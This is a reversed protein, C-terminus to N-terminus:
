STAAGLSMAPRAAAAAPREAVVLSRGTLILAAGSIVSGVITLAGLGGFSVLIGLLYLAPVWRAVLRARAAAVLLLILGLFAPLVAAAGFAAAGPMGQAAEEVAVAQALPLREALAIAYFDVVLLGPMTGWGILSLTGGAARLKGGARGLAAVLGFVAPLMALFGFHLLVAAIQGQEPNDGITQLYASTTPESEWPTAAMGALTLIAGAALSVATLRPSPFSM